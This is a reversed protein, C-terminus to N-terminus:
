PVISSPGGIGEMGGEHHLNSFPHLGEKVALTGRTEQSQNLVLWDARPTERALPVPRYPAGPGTPSCLHPLTYVSSCLVGKARRCLTSMMVKEPIAAVVKCVQPSGSNPLLRFCLSLAGQQLLCGWLETVYRILLRKKGGLFRWTPPTVSSAQGWKMLTLCSVEFGLTPSRLHSPKRV